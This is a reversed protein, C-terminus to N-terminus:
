KKIEEMMQQITVEQTKKINKVAMSKSLERVQLMTDKLITEKQVVVESEVDTIMTKLLKSNKKLSVLSETNKMREIKEKAVKGQLVTVQDLVKELKAKDESQEEGLDKIKEALKAASDDVGKKLKATEEKMLEVSKKMISSQQEMVIAILEQLDGDMELLYWMSSKVMEIQDDISTEDTIGM